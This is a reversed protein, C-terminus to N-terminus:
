SSVRIVLQDGDVEVRHYGVAVVPFGVSEGTTVDFGWDHWPCYVFQGDCFGNALPGGMHPCQNDIAHYVGDVRFVALDREGERVRFGRGDVVSGCPIRIELNEAQHSM